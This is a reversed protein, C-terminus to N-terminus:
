YIEKKEIYRDYAKELKLKSKYRLVGVGVFSVGFLFEESGEFAYFIGSVIFYGSIIYRKRRVSRVFKEFRLEGAKLKREAEEPTAEPIDGFEIYYKEVDSLHSRAHLGIPLYIAGPLLYLVAGVIAFEESDNLFLLGQIIFETGIGIVINSGRIRDRKTEKSISFLVSNLETLQPNNSDYINDGSFAETFSIKDRKSQASTHKINFGIVLIASSTADIIFKPRTM